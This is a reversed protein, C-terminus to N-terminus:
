KVALTIKNKKLFDVFRVVSAPTMGDHTSHDNYGSTLYTSSNRTEARLKLVVEDKLRPMVPKGNQVWQLKLGKKFFKWIEVDYKEIKGIQTVEAVLVAEFELHQNDQLAKLSIESVVSM